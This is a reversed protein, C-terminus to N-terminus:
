EIYKLLERMGDAYERFMKAGLSTIEIVKLPRWGLIYSTKVYGAEDLKRLHHDLNGSTVGLLRQLEMFGVRRHLYLLFMITFRHQASFIDGKEFFDLPSPEEDAVNV